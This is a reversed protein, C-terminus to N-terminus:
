SGVPGVQGAAALLGSLAHQQDDMRTVDDRFWAGEVLDPSPWGAADSADDQREALVGAGCVLRDSLPERLDALSPELAAVASLSGLGELWVGLGGGRARPDVFAVPWSDKQSEARVLMAFREALARAYTVHHEDLGDPAIEALTYAAWQDAWPRYPLDEVEDRATSMYDLVRRAPVDWGETPFLNHM